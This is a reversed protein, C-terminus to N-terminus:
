IHDRCSVNAVVSPHSVPLDMPWKDMQYEPCIEEIIQRHVSDDGISRSFEFQPLQAMRHTTM